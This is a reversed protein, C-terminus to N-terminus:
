VGREEEDDDEEEEVDENDEDEDEDDDGEEEEEEGEEEEEEGEDDEWLSLHDDALDDHAEEEEEDSRMEEESSDELEDEDDDDEDEAVEEENDEHEEEEEHDSLSCLSNIAAVIHCPLDDLFKTMEEEMRIGLIETEMEVYEPYFMNKRLQRRCQKGTTKYAEVFHFPDSEQVLSEISCRVEDLRTQDQCIRSINKQIASGNIECQTRTFERLTLIFRQVRTKMEDELLTLCQEADEKFKKNQREKEKQEQLKREALSNKRELRYLQKDMASKLDKMTNKLTKITHGSHGGEITCANCVCMKDDMCYYRYVEDHDLCKRKWFDLMPDALVHERFAPLELHPKLHEQCMSVECKLCTKVALTSSAADQKDKGEQSLCASTSSKDGFSSFGSAGAAAAPCYDCQVAFITKALQAASFSLPEQSKLASAAATMARRRRLYDDAINALKFNKQFNTGSQHNERCEPCRVHGREAQRRLRDLCIKCFNHGCPLLRPDRYVDLCVPCTLEDQLVSCQESHASAM